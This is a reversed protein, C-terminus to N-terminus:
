VKKRRAAGILGILGSGFLWATAPIPVASFEATMTANTIDYQLFGSVTFQDSLLSPYALQSETWNDPIGAFGDAGFVDSNFFIQTTSLGLGLFDGDFTGYIIEMDDTNPSANYWNGTRIITNSTATADSAGGPRNTFTIDTNFWRYYATDFSAGSTQNYALISTDITTVMNFHAGALDYDDTIGTLTMDGDLTITIISSIAPNSLGLSLLWFGFIIIKKM